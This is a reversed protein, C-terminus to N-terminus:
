KLINYALNNWKSLDSMTKDKSLMKFLSKYTEDKTYTMRRYNAGLGSFFIPFFSHWKIQSKPFKFFWGGSRPFLKNFSDFANPIEDIPIGTKQSLLKLEKDEIDTLIFGGFVYTFCQWFRPYLYFYKDKIIENLGIKITNPLTLYDLQSIIDNGKYNGKLKDILHDIACKLITVRALHEV